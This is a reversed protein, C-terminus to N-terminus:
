NHDRSATKMWEGVMHGWSEEEEIQTGLSLPPSHHNHGKLVQIEIRGGADEWAQKFDTAADHVVEPDLEAVLVLTQPWREMTLIPNTKKLMERMLSTPQETRSVAENGYYAEFLRELDPSLSLPTSLFITGSLRPGNTGRILLSRRDRFQKNFMWTAIHSSHGMLVLDHEDQFRNFIWGIAEDVDEGGSPYKAGHKVLRYDMVIVNYGLKGAFFSAINRYVLEGPIEPLVRDGFMFAGGYVYILIPRKQGALPPPTTSKPEYLDLVNRPHQGYSFTTVKTDHIASSNAPLRLINGYTEYTPGVTELVDRGFSAIVNM